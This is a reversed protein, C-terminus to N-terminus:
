KLRFINEGGGGGRWSKVAPEGGWGAMFLSQDRESTEICFVSMGDGTEFKKVPVFNSGFFVVAVGACIFGVYVPGAADGGSTHNGCASYNAEQVHYLDM